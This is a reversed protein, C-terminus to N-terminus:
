MEAYDAPAVVTIGSNKFDNVDVDVGKLLGLLSSTVPTANPKTLVAIERGSKTIVVSEAEIKDLYFAPSKVFDIYAAQIM